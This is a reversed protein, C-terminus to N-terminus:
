AQVPFGPQYLLAPWLIQLQPIHPAEGAEVSKIHLVRSVDFCLRLVYAVKVTQCLEPLAYGAGLSLKLKAEGTDINGYEIQVFSSAILTQRPSAMHLPM